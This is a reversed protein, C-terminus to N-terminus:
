CLMYENVFHESVAQVEIRKKWNIAHSKTVSPLEILTLRSLPILTPWRDLCSVELISFTSAM